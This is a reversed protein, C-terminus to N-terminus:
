NLKFHTTQFYDYMNAWGQASNDSPASGGGSLLSGLYYTTIDSTNQLASREAQTMQGIKEDLSMQSLLSNVRESISPSQNNPSNPEEKCSWLM